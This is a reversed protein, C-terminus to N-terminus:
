KSEEKTELKFVYDIADNAAKLWEKSPRKDNCQGVRYYKWVEDQLSKPVMKWHPYCMLLEPKVATKCKKAHCTHSM